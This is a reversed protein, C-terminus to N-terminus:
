ATLLSSPLLLVDAPLLLLLLLCAAPEGCVLPSPLLTVLLPVVGVLLLVVGVLLLLWFFFALLPLDCFRGAGNVATAEAKSRRPARPSSSQSMSGCLQLQM